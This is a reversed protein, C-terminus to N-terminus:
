TGNKFDKAHRLRSNFGPRGSWQRVSVVLSILLITTTSNLGLSPLYSIEYSEGLTFMITHNSNSSIVIDYDLLNAVIAAPM